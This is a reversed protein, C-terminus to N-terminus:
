DCAVLIQCAETAAHWGAQNNAEVGAIVIKKLADVAFEKCTPTHPVPEGTELELKEKAKSM